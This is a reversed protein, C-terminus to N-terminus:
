IQDLFAAVQQLARYRHSIQNKQEAGVEALTKGSPLLFVPDYGFGNEGRPAHAIAGACTGLFTHESGDPLILAMACVFRATRRDDPVGSLAHLLKQMRDADTADAGAYRATYVGPAGDLADVELGSDDALVACDALSAIARAKLLANEAFTTGTEAVEVDVGAEDQGLVTENSLIAKIEALKGQNRTAVILKM